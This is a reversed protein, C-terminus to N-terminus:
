RKDNVIVVGSMILAQARIRNEAIKQSLFSTSANKKHRKSSVSAHETKTARTM